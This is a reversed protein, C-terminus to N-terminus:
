DLGAAIEQGCQLSAPQGEPANNRVRWRGKEGRERHSSAQTAGWRAGHRGNCPACAPRLNDICHGRNNDIRDAGMPGDCGCHHCPHGEINSMFWEHTLDNALGHKKDFWRYTNLLKVVRKPYKGYHRAM